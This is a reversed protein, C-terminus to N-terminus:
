KCMRYVDRMVGGDWRLLSEGGDGGGRRRGGMWGFGM